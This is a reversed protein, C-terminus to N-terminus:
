IWEGNFYSSAYKVFRDFFAWLVYNMMSEGLHYQLLDSSIWIPPINMLMIVMFASM